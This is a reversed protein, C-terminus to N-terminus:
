WVSEGVQQNPMRLEVYRQLQAELPAVFAWYKLLGECYSSKTTMMSALEVLQHLREHQPRTAERMEDTLKDIREPTQNTTM